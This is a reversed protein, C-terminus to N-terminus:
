LFFLYMYIQAELLHEPEFHIRKLRLFQSFLISNKLSMPHESNYNLYMHRDTSKTHLSTHLENHRISIM